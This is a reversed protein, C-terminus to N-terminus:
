EKAKTARPAAVKTEQPTPRNDATPDYKKADGSEIAMAFSVREQPHRVSYVKGAEYTKTDSGDQSLEVTKNFIVEM